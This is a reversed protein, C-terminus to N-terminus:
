DAALTFATPAPLVKFLGSLSKGSSILHVQLRLESDLDLYRLLAALQVPPPYM